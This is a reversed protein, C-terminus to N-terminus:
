YGKTSKSAATRKEPVPAGRLALWDADLDSTGSPDGTRPKGLGYAPRLGEPLGAKAFEKSNM